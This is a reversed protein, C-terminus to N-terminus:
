EFAILLLMKTSNSNKNILMRKEFNCLPNDLVNISVIKSSPIQIQIVSLKIMLLKDVLLEKNLIIAERSM